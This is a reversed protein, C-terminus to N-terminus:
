SKRVNRRKKDTNGLVKTNDYSNDEEIKNEKTTFM